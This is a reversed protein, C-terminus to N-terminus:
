HSLCGHPIYVPEGNDDLLDPAGALDPDSYYKRYLLGLEQRIQNEFWVGRYEVVSEFSYHEGKVMRMDLLGRVSDWAHFLEHALSVTKDTARKKGDSEISLIEKTPHWLVEGGIGVSNFVVGGDSMRLTRLFHIAQANKIGSWFRGGPFTPNFSFNGLRIIVPQPARELLRLLKAGTPLNELKDLSSLAHNVFVDTSTHVPDGDLTTLVGQRYIYEKADQARVRLNSDDRSMQPPQWFPDLDEQNQCLYAGLHRTNDGLRGEMEQRTWDRYDSAEFSVLEYDRAFAQTCLLAVLFLLLRMPSQLM